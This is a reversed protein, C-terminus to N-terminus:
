KIGRAKLITELKLQFLDNVYNGYVPNAYGDKLTYFPHPYDRQMYNFGQRKVSFRLEEEFPIKEPKVTISDRYPHNYDAVAYPSAWKGNKAKYVDFYQYKEHYLKGNYYSVFLLVHEFQSFAPKGYHDYVTFEITDAKYSGHVLQLVKYKAKYRQDMSMPVHKATITDKGRITISDVVWQSKEEPYYEVKLKQGVFVILSDKRSQAISYTSISLLSLLLFLGSKFHKMM